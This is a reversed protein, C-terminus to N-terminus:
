VYVVVVALVLTAYPTLCSYFTGAVLALLQNLLTKTQATKPILLRCVLGDVILLEARKKRILMFLSLWIKVVHNIWQM